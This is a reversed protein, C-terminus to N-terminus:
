SDCSVQVDLVQKSLRKVKNRAAEVERQAIRMRQLNLLNEPTNQVLAWAYHTRYRGTRGRVSFEWTSAGMFNNNGIPKVDYCILSDPCVLIPDHSGETQPCYVPYLRDSAFLYEMM